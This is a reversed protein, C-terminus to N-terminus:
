VQQTCHIHSTYSKSTSHTRKHTRHLDSLKHRIHSQSKRGGFMTMMADTMTNISHSNKTNEQIEHQLKSDTSHHCHNITSTDMRRSHDMTPQEMHSKNRHQGNLSWDCHMRTAIPCHSKRSNELSIKSCPSTSDPTTTNPWTRSTFSSRRGMRVRLYTPIVKQCRSVFDMPSKNIITSNSNKQCMM